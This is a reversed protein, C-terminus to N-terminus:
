TGSPIASLAATIEQSTRPEDTLHVTHEDAETCLRSSQSTTHEATASHSVEIAGTSRDHQTMPGLTLDFQRLRLLKVTESRATTPM